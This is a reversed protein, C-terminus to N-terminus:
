TSYIIIIQCYEFNHCANSAGRLKQLRTAVSVNSLDMQPAFHVLLHLLKNM